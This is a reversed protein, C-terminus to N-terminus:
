WAVAESGLGKDAHTIGWCNPEREGICWGSPDCSVSQFHEGWKLCMFCM